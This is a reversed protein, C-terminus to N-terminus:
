YGKLDLEKALNRGKLTATFWCVDGINPNRGLEDWGRAIAAIVAGASGAITTWGVKPDKDQAFNGAEILGADLLDSLLQMIESRVEAPLPGAWYADDDISRIVAWLGVHDDACEALIEKHKAGLKVTM